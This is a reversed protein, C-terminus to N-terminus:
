FYDKILGQVKFGIRSLEDCASGRCGYKENSDLKLIVMRIAVRNLVIKPM